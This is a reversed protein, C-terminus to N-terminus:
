ESPCRNSRYAEAFDPKLEIARDDSDVTAELQGLEQLANGRNSYAQADDPKLRIIQDFVQVAPQLQGQRPLVAGLLNLM